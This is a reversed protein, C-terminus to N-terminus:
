PCVLVDYFLKHVLFLLLLIGILMLVKNINNPKTLFKIKKQIKNFSPLLNKKIM